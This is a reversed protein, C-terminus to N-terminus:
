EDYRAFSEAREGCLFVQVWDVLLLQHQKVFDDMLPAITASETHTGPRLCLTTIYGSDDTQGWFIWGSVTQRAFGNVVTAAANSFAIGDYTKELSFVNDLEALSLSKEPLPIDVRRRVHLQKFGSGDHQTQYINLIDELEQRIENELRVSLFEFQRWDDEYVVLVNELSDAAEVGPLDSSITPLSYLIKAPDIQTVEYKALTIILSGTKRFEAKRPPVASVVSWEDGAISLTTNIEFTDPLQEIPVESAAFANEQGSEIFQVRIIEKDKKKGFGFM